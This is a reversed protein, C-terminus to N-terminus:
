TGACKGPLPPAYLRNAEASLIQHQGESINDLVAQSIEGFTWQKIQGLIMVDNARTLDEESVIAQLAKIREKLESLRIAEQYAPNSQYHAYIEQIRRATGHKLQEFLEAYDGDGFDVKITRM